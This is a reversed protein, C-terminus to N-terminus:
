CVPPVALLLSTRLVRVQGLSAGLPDTFRGVEPLTEVALVSLPSDLPLALSLLADEVEGEQWIAAASLEPVRTRSEVQFAFKKGLLINRQSAGDAQAAQAYLLCWIETRPNTRAWTATASPRAFTAAARVVATTRSVNCPLDPAPHQIGTARLPPGFRAQATSWKNAHGIRFEYTYFQFLDDSGETVGPPLPLLFHIPSPSKQLQQMASLGADDRSQGPTIVRILEPDLEIAPEQVEYAGGEMLPLLMPDAASALVRAFLADDPDAVPEEFEIWLSRTRPTTSTYGPDHGYPTLAIGASAIRPAQKPPAAIPLRIAILVDPDANAPPYHFNAHLTYKLHLEDPFGGGVPKPDVADIFLIRTYSRDAGPGTAAPAISRRLEITGVEQGDRTVTFSRAALGDWTWDRAIKLDLVCLWHGLLDEKAAFRISSGNPALAHRISQSAGFVIREGQKAFLLLEDVNVQLAHALRQVLDPAGETGPALDPAIVLPVIPDPQLLIGKLREADNTPAFLHREDAPAAFLVVSNGTSFRATETGFYTLTPDERCEAIFTLRVTRARPLPLPGTAAVPPFASIDPADVYILNIDLPDQLTAPFARRTAYLLTFNADRDAADFGLGQVSVEIRTFAADPDPLEIIGGSANAATAQTLLASLAGPMGTYVLEPFGLTPRRVRYSAPPVTPDIQEARKEVTIPKPPVFRRFHCTAVPAPAPNFFPDGVAPGGGSVDMLRVRFDYSKGYQLPVNDFGTPTYVGDTTPSGNTYLDSTTKDVVALSRGNWTAFYAPLWFDGSTDSTVSHPWVQASLDGAFRGLPLAGVKLDAEVAVLSNWAGAGHPSVDVRYGSVTMSVDMAAITPDDTIQRSTWLTTQEDDWGLRIGIEKVPPLGTDATELISRSRPEFAHVIQAFGDDYTEAEQFVTDYNASPAVPLVPFVVCAFLPRAASLPAIRAAYSRILDPNAAELSQYDSAASLRVYVWGGDKLLTPDPLALTADYVLGLRMALLPQRLALALAKGWPMEPPPTKRLTVPKTDRIACSYSDDTVCGPTRGLVFAFSNRYSLPLYKKIAIDGRRGKPPTSPPKINGVTELQEFYPRRGAPSTGSISVTTTVDAPRPLHELSPIIALEFKLSADAFAPPAPTDTTLPDLPNGRPLATFRVHLNAGDWGQPLTLLSLRTASAM